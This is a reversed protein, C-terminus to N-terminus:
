NNSIELFIDRSSLKNKYIELPIMNPYKKHTAPFPVYLKNHIRKIDDPNVQRDRKSARSVAVDIDTNVHILIITYGYKIARDLASSYAIVNAGTGDYIFSYKIDPKVIMNLLSSTKRSAFGLFENPNKPDYGKILPLIEDPNCKIFDTYSYGKNSKGSKSNSLNSISGSNPIYSQLSEVIIKKSITTKGSGPIGMMFIGIPTDHPVAKKSLYDYIEKTSIPEQKTKVTKKTIMSKKVTPTKSTKKTKTTM